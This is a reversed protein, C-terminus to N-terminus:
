SVAQKNKAQFLEFVVIFSFNSRFFRTNIAAPRFSRVFISVHKIIIWTEKKKLKM